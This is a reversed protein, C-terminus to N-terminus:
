ENPVEDTNNDNEKKREFPNFKEVRDTASVIDFIAFQLDDITEKAVEDDVYESIFKIASELCTKAIRLTANFVDKKTDSM